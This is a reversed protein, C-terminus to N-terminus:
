LMNIPRKEQLLTEYGHTETYRAAEQAGRKSRSEVIVDLVSRFFGSKAM